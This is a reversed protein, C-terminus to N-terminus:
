VTSVRHVRLFDQKRKMIVQTHTHTHKRARSFSNEQFLDLRTEKESSEHKM